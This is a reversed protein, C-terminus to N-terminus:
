SKSGKSGHRKRIIGIIDKECNPYLVSCETQSSVGYKAADAYMQFFLKALPVVEYEEVEKEMKVIDIIKDGFDAYDSNPGVSHRHLFLLAFIGYIM